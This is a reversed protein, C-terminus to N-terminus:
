WSAKRLGNLDGRAALKRFRLRSLKYFNIVSRSRFTQTCHNHVRSLSSKRPLKSKEINAWWRVSIDLNQNSVIAQYAKRKVEYIAFSKRRMADSKFM